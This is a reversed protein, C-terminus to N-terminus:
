QLDKYRRGRAYRIGFTGEPDFTVADGQSFPGSGARNMMSLWIRDPPLFQRAKSGNPEVQYQFDLFNEGLPLMQLFVVLIGALLYGSVLAVAGAGFQQMLAPLEVEQPALNNTLLRLLALTPAFLIFLSLSDEFGAFMTGKVLGDLGDALPEFFEFAVVGAICINILTAMATLLGERVAAYAVILMVILTFGTLM